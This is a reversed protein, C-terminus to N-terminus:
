QGGAVVLVFEQKTFGNPFELTQLIPNQYSRFVEDNLFLNYKNEQRSIIAQQALIYSKWTELVDVACYLAVRGGTLAKIDTIYYYRGFDTIYTYNINTVDIKDIIVVPYLMSTNEKWVGSIDTGQQVLEKNITNNDSKNCYMTLQM